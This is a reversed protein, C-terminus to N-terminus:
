SQGQVPPVVRILTIQNRHRRIIDLRFGHFNFVQGAEPIKRAEHLVLGALTSYHKIRYNGHL